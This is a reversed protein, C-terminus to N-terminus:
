SENESKREGYSCFDDLIALIDDVAENYGRLFNDVDHEINSYEQLARYSKVDNQWYDSVEAKKRIIAESIADASFVDATPTDNVRLICEVFTTIQGACIQKDEDYTLGKYIERLRSESEKLDEKLVDADIYRAM